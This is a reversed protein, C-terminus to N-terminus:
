VERVEIEAIKEDHCLQNFHRVADSSLSLYPNQEDVVFRYGLLICGSTDSPNNGAHFKIETRNPVGILEWLKQKFKESWEWVIPYVGCQICGKGVAKGPELTFCFFDKYKIFGLTYTPAPNIRTLVIRPM